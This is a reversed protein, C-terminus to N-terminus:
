RTRPNKRIVCELAGGILADPLYSRPLKLLPHPSLIIDMPYSVYAQNYNRTTIDCQRYQALVPGVLTHAIRISTGYELIPACSPIDYAREFMHARPEALVSARACLRLRGRNRVHVSVDM